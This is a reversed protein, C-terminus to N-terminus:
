IEHFGKKKVRRQIKIESIRQVQITEMNQEQTATNKCPLTQSLSMIEKYIKSQWKRDKQCALKKKRGEIRTEQTKGM